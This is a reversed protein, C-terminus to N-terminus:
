GISLVTLHMTGRPTVAEAVEGVRLFLLAEGLPSEASVGNEVERVESADCLTYTIVKDTTDDRVTVPVGITVEDFVADDPLVVARALKQEAAQIQGEVIGYAERAAHYGANERLDGYSRTLEVEDRLEDRRAKLSKLEAQLREYSAKTLPAQQAAM